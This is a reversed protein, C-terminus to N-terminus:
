NKQLYLMKPNTDLIREAFQCAEELTFYHSKVREYLVETILGRAKKQAGYTGEVFLYDGGFAFIKNAPIMDILIDLYKKYLTGSVEAIWCLNIYSNPYMKVMTVLEDTFPYGLHFLDFKASRYKLLLNTLDVPNSSRIDNSNGELLGTHIQIPLNYDIAKKICYHYIYDQFPKIEISSIHDTHLFYDNLKMIKSFSKEAEGATTDEFFLERHYASGIKFGFIRGQRREFFVDILRVFDSFSNISFNHRKEIEIISKKSNIELLLDLRMVPLFFDQDPETVTFGELESVLDLDNVIYEINSKVKLIDKYYEYEKQSQMQETIKEIGQFDIKEVSYLDKAIMKVIEFYNTNKAYEWYPYFIDWKQKLEIKSDRLKELDEPCLGATVLDTSTYHGLFLFFDLKRKRRESEYMLHEHTDFISIKEIKERLEEFLKKDIM